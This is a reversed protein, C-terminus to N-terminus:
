LPTQSLRRHAPAKGQLTLTAGSGNADLGIVGGTNSLDIVSDTLVATATAPLIAAVRVGTQGGGPHVTLGNGTLNGDPNVTVTSFSGGIQTTAPPSALQAVASSSLVAVATLRTLVRLAYGGSM